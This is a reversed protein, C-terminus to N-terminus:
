LIKLYYNTSNGLRNGGMNWLFERWVQHCVENMWHAFSRAGPFHNILTLWVSAPTDTYAACQGTLCGGAWCEVLYGFYTNLPLYQCDWDDDSYSTACHENSDVRDGM